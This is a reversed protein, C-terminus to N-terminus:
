AASRRLAGLAERVAVVEGIVVLAPTPADAAAAGIAGLPAVIVQEDATTGRSVVAAPTSAPKGEAILREALRGVVAGGMFAVLTGPVGALGRVDLAEVDNAAFATVAQSIGRHTVPIGASEPVAAISSVGPVLEFPVGARVLALAEEGGRGFVFPDGGKLRVVRRGRRGHAVLLGNIDDQTLGDRSIRLSGIPAEAVIEQAVLRDYVLVECDRVRALGRVTILEPDGPGAGVLSVTV